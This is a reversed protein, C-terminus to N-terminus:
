CTGATGIFGISPNFAANYESPVEYHGWGRSHAREHARLKRWATDSACYYNMQASDYHIWRLWKNTSSAFYSHARGVLISDGSDPVHEYYEPVVRDSDVHQERGTNFATVTFTYNGVYAAAVPEAALSLALGASIALAALAAVLKPKGRLSEVVLKM